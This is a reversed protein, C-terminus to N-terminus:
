SEEPMLFTKPMFDYIDPNNNELIKFIKTLEAKNSGASIGPM